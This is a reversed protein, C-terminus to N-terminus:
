KLHKALLTRRPMEIGNQTLIASNKLSGADPVTGSTLWFWKEVRAGERLHDKLQAEAANRKGVLVKVEGDSVPHPEVAFVQKTARHGLLYDWRHDSPNSVAFASDLDLSDAFTPRIDAHLLLKDAAKMAGLGDCVRPQLASAKKLAARVPTAARKDASM